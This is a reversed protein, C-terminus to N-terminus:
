KTLCLEEFVNYMESIRPRQAKHFSWSRTCITQVEQDISPPVRLTLTGQAVHIGVFTLNEGEFPVKEIMLEWVLVGFAWVDSAASYENHNICEPASWAIPLCDTTTRGADQFHQLRTMGFDTIKVNMTRLDILINRLAIDRHVYNSNHLACIASSIQFLINYKIPLSFVYGRRICDLVSGNEMWETVIASVNGDTKVYGLFRNIGPHQPLEAWIRSEDQLIKSRKEFSAKEPSGLVEKIAVLLGLYKGKWVAGFSGAGVRQLRSLKNAEIEMKEYVQGFANQANRENKVNRPTAVKKKRETVLCHRRRKTPNKALPIARMAGPGPVSRAAVRPSLHWVPLGPTDPTQPDPISEINIIFSGVPTECEGEVILSTSGALLKCSAYVDKASLRIGRFSAYNENLSHDTPSLCTSSTIAIHRTPGRPTDEEDSSICIALRPESPVPMTKFTRLYKRKTTSRTSGEPVTETGEIGEKLKSESSKSKKTVKRYLLIVLTLLSIVFFIFSSLSLVLVSNSITTSGEEVADSFMSPMRSPSAIVEAIPVTSPQQTPHPSPSRSPSQSPPQSPLQSPVSSPLSSPSGSPSCSPTQSPLPSPSQSPATSPFSSPSDSPWYM